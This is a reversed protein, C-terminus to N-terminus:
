HEGAPDSGSEVRALLKRATEEINGAIETRKAVSAECYEMLSRAISTLANTNEKPTTSSEAQLIAGSGNTASFIERSSDVLIDNSKQQARCRQLMTLWVKHVALATSEAIPADCRGVRITQPDVRHESGPEICNWLRETAQTVTVWYNGPLSSQKGPARYVSIATEVGVTGPLSVFRATEGPSLLLKRQWLEQYIASLGLAEKVPVLHDENPSGTGRCDLAIGVGLGVEMALLLLRKMVTGENLQFRHERL